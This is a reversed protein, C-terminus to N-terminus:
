ANEVSNKALISYPRFAIPTVLELELEPKDIFHDSKFM